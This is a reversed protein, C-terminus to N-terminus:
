PGIRIVFGTLEANGARLPDNQDPEVPELAEFLRFQGVHQIQLRDCQRAQKIAQAAASQDFAAGIWIVAAGVPKIEGGAGARQELLEAIEAVFQHRRRKRAHFALADFSHDRLECDDLLVQALRDGM